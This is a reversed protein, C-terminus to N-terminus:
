SQLRFNSRKDKTHRKLFISKVFKGKYVPTEWKPGMARLRTEGEELYDLEKSTSM